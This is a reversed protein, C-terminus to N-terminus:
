VFVVRSHFTQTYSSDGPECFQILFTGLEQTKSTEFYAEPENDFVGIIDEGKIVLYKGLYKEVLEVQHDIFYNFEKDLM